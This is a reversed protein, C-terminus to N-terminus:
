HSKSCIRVKEIRCYVMEVVTECSSHMQVNIKKLELCVDSRYFQKLGDPDKMNLEEELDGYLFAMEVDIVEAMMSKTIMLTM